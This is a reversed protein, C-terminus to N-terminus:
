VNFRFHIVDGDQVVYDKGEIRLRGHEKAKSEGNYKIYDEYSIVEAKIFGREFDTHIIGAAQPALTGKVITWARAEKPGVTFYSNLDFLRYCSKIIKNLGTEQLGWINLYDKKEELTSLSAIESEISSSIIIMDSQGLIDSEQVAKCLANGSIAEHELVNCVYIVPKTTLLQLRDFKQSKERYLQLKRVPQDNRLIQQAHYLLEIEEKAKQDGGRSKKELAPLRKEISELDALILELEIIEADRVPDISGYVHTIDSIDFCRLVHIIADVERIHSLFKNGLGEGSSAGKVLGAIDVFKVYTPIISQSGAIDALKQLRHDPVAVIGINPEITCFPYNGVNASQTATLANFLTSKGVNPLGVIGYRLEM